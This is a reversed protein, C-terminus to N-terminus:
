HYLIILQPASYRAAIFATSCNMPDTRYSIAEEISAPRIELEGHKEECVYTTVASLNQYCELESQLLDHDGETLDKSTIQLISDEYAYVTGYVMRFQSSGLDGGSPNSGTLKGANRNFIIILKAIAYSNDQTYRVLDGPKPEYRHGDELMAHGELDVVAANKPLNFCLQKGQKILYVKQVAEGEENIGTTVKQIISVPTSSTIMTTNDDDYIVIAEAVPSTGSSTYAKYKYKKDAYLMTYTGSYFTDKSVASPNTQVFFVKTRANLPTIGNLTNSEQKYMVSNGLSDYQIVLEQSELVSAVTGNYSNRNEATDIWCLKGNGSLRYRILQAPTQQSSNLRHLLDDAAVLQEDLQVRGEAEYIVLKNDETLIQYEMAGLGGKSKAQILYGYKEAIQLSQNMWAIKGEYSFSVSVNSGVTLKEQYQSFDKSVTYETEDLTVKWDPSVSTVTGTIKEQCVIITILSRDKSEFISLIDEEQIQDLSITNRNTDLISIRWDELSNLDLVEGSVLYIKELDTSVSKVSCTHEEQIVATNWGHGSEILTVSGSKPTFTETEYGPYAIGNYIVDVSPSIRISKQRSDEEYSLIGNDFSVINDAPITKIENGEPLAYLITNEDVTDASRYYFRIKQGIYQELGEARYVTQEIRVYGQPLTSFGDLATFATENLVGKSQYVRFVEELLTAGKEYVAKQGYAKQRLPKCELVSYFLHVAERYTFIKNEPLYLGNQVGESITRSIQSFGTGYGLGRSVAAVAEQSTITQDPYFNGDMYGSMIGSETLLAIEGSGTTFTTVDSYINYDSGVSPQEGWGLLKSLEIAFDARTIAEEEQAIEFLGLAQLLGLETHYSDSVAVAREHSYIPCFLFIAALVLAILNKM